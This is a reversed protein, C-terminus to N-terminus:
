MEILEKSTKKVILELCIFFLSTVFCKTKIKCTNQFVQCFKCIYKNYKPKDVTVLSFYMLPDNWM